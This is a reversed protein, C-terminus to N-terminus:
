GSYLTIRWCSAVVACVCVIVCVMEERIGRGLELCVKSFRVIAILFEAREFSLRYTM